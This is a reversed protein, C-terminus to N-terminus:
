GIGFETCFIIFDTFILHAFWSYYINNMTIYVYKCVYMYVYM